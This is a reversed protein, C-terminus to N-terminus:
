QAVRATSCGLPLTFLSSRVSSACSRRSIRFASPCRRATRLLCEYMGAYSGPRGGRYVAMMVFLYRTYQVRDTDTLPEKRESLARVFPVVHADVASSIEAVSAWRNASQYELLHNRENASLKAKASMSAGREQWASQSIQVIRDQDATLHLNEVGFVVASYTRAFECFHLMARHFNGKAAPQLDTANLVDTRCCVVSLCMRCQSSVFVSRTRARRDYWDDISKLNTLIKFLQDSSIAKGKAAWWLYKSAHSVTQPIASPAYNTQALRKAFAEFLPSQEYHAFHRRVRTNHPDDNKEENAASASASASALPIRWNKAQRKRDRSQLRSQRAVWRESPAPVQSCACLNCLTLMPENRALSQRSVYWLATPPSTRTGPLRKPPPPWRLM